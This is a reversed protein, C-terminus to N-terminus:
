LATWRECSTPAPLLLCRRQRQQPQRRRHAMSLPSPLAAATALLRPPQCRGAASPLSGPSRRLQQEMGAATGATARMNRSSMSRCSGFTLSALGAACLPVLPPLCHLTTLSHRCRRRRLCLQWWSGQGVARPSRNLGAVWRSTPAAGVGVFGLQPDRYVGSGGRPRPHRLSM